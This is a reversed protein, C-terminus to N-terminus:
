FVVPREPFKLRVRHANIEEFALIKNKSSDSQLIFLSYLMLM